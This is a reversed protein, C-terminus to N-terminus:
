NNYNLQKQEAKGKPYGKGANGKNKLMAPDLFFLFLRNKGNM